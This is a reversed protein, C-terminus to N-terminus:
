YLIDHDNILKNSSMRPEGWGFLIKWFESNLIKKKLQKSTLHIQIGVEHIIAIENRYTNVSAYVGM